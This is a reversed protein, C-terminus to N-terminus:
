RRQGRWKGNEDFHISGEFGSSQWAVDFAPHLLNMLDEKTSEPVEMVIESILLHKKNIPRSEEFEYFDFKERETLSMRYGGVNLLSLLFFLPPSVDLTKHLELLSPLFRYMHIEEIASAFMETEDKKNIPFGYVFEIGGDRLVQFYYANNTGTFRGEFNYNFSPSLRSLDVRQQVYGASFPVVHLVIKPGSELVVPTEGALIAGIREARFDRIREAATESLTFLQQLGDFDLPSSTTEHRIYFKRLGYLSVWHPKSVSSPVYMVIIDQGSETKLPKIRYGHLSKEVGDRILNQMTSILQDVNSFPTFGCVEVPLGEKEDDGEKMGYILHGGSSNAFATVDKLFERKEDRNSLNLEEKYDLQRDEMTEDEVLGILTALDIEDFPTYIPM